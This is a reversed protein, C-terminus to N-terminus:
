VSDEPREARTALLYIVTALGVLLGAEYAITRLTDAVVNANTLSPLRVETHQNLDRAAVYIQLGADAAAAGLLGLASMGALQTLRGGSLAPLWHDAAAVGAGFCVIFIAIPILV